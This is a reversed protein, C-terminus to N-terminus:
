TTGGTELWNGFIRVLVLGVVAMLTGVLSVVNGTIAAFFHKIM